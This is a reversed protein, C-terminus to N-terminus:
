KSHDGRSTPSGLQDEVEVTQLTRSPWLPTYIGPLLKSPAFKISSHVNTEHHLWRM